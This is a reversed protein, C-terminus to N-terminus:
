SFVGEEESHNRTQQTSSLGEAVVVLSLLAGEVRYQLCHDLRQWQLRSWARAEGAELM